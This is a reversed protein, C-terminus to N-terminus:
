FRGAPGTAQAQELLDDVAQKMDEFDEAQEGLAGSQYRAYVGELVIAIKWLAFSLYLPVSSTDRGAIEGYRAALDARKPFGPLRTAASLHPIPESGPDVWYALMVGVDALPDGLTCLEWDLVAAITQNDILTNDLRFDGHVITVEDRGALNSELWRGVRDVLEHERTKWGDWQSRWRRLQRQIYGTGRGLDGLGVAAPDVSHLDALTDVLRLGLRWRAQESLLGEVAEVERLVMGDVYDMVLFVDGTVSKDRCEGRVRPVPVATGWLSSMVRSERLVDHASPMVMSLPPRRLVYRHGAVDEVLYSLNSHGGAILSFRLPLMAEEVHDEFWRSVGGVDIGSLATPSSLGETGTEVSRHRRRM